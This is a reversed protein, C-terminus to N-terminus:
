LTTITSTLNGRRVRACTPVVYVISCREFHSTCLARSGKPRKFTSAVLGIPKSFCNHLWGSRCHSFFAKNFLALFFHSQFLLTLALTSSPFFLQAPRGPKDPWNPCLSSHFSNRQQGNGYGPSLLSMMVLACPYRM